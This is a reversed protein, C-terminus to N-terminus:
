IAARAKAMTEKSNRTSGRIGDRMAWATTGKKRRRASVFFCFSRVASFRRDVYGAAKRYQAVLDPGYSILGGATVFFRYSYVVPLQHRAALTIILERHKTAAASVVSILGGKPERAFEVVARELKDADRVDIPTLEVGLTSALAQIIAWQGVAAPGPERLVGVRTVWPALEIPLELWKASFSYEFQTFGTMNGRPRALSQVFGAGVPDLSQAFVIPVTHTAQQLAPLTPGTGAVIVDLGLAVLEATDRRLRAADGASWRTDIRVNRGVAWGAEQLGQLLAALRAQAEPEDAASDMLVGVRRMREPQQARAALPWAFGASSLALIFERRRM